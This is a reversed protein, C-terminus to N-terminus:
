VQSSLHSTGRGGADEQAMNARQNLLVQVQLDIDDIKQRIAQLAQKESM